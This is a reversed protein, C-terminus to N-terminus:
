NFYYALSISPYMLSRKNNEKTLTTSETIQENFSAQYMNIKFGINLNEQIEPMYAIEYKMTTGRWEATNVTDDYKAVALFNYTMFVGYQRRKGFLFGFRPGMETSKYSIANQSDPTDKAQIGFYSWGLVFGSKRNIGMMVAFDYITQSSQVENTATLKDTSLSIGTEFSLAQAKFSFLFIGILLISIKYKMM